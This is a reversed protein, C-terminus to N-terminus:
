GTINIPLGTNEEFSDLAYQFYRRYIDGNKVLYVHTDLCNFYGQLDKGPKLCSIAELEEKQDQSLTKMRNLEHFRDGVMDMLIDQGYGVAQRMLANFSLKQVGCLRMRRMIHAWIYAVDDLMTLDDYGCGLMECLLEDRKTM